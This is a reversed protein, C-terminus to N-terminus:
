QSRIDVFVEKGWRAASERATCRFSSCGSTELLRAIEREGSYEDPLARMKDLMLMMGSAIGDSRGPFPLDVDQRTESSTDLCCTM